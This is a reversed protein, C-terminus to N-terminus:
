DVGVPLGQKRCVTTRGPMRADGCIAWLSEGSAIRECIQEAITQKEHYLPSRTREPSESANQVDRVWELLGEDFLDFRSNLYLRRGLFSTRWCAYFGTAQLNAIWDRHAVAFSDGASIAREFDRAGTGFGYRTKRSQFQLSIM